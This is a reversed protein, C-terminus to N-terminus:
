PRPLRLVTWSRTFGSGHVTIQWNFNMFTGSEIYPQFEKALKESLISYKSSVPRGNLEDVELVLATRTAPQRSLPDTITQDQINYAYFHMTAPIEPELIVYNQLM